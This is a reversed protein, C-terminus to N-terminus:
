KAVVVTGNFVKSDAEIQYIYIGSSAVKGDGNKGDWKLSYETDGRSMDSIFAGNIDFIKGTIGTDKGVYMFHVVDNWGDGNPTFIRPYVNALAFRTAKLSERLQYKGGKKAKLSVTQKQINVDGGVKVWEIGNFWFLSLNDAAQNAPISVFSPAGVIGGFVNYSIKVNALSRTFMLGPVVEETGAKKPLFTFSRITKGTEESTLRVVDFYINDGFSNTEEYLMGLIPLPVSISTKLDNMDYFTVNMDVSSDVRASPRSVNSSLDHTTLWWYYSLGGAYTTTSIVDIPLTCVTTVPGGIETSRYLTYHSLDSAIAGDTSKTVKDWSITFYNRDSSIATRLGRPERPSLTETASLAVAAVTSALVNVSAVDATSNWVSLFEANDRAKIAFWYMAGPTLNQVLYKQQSLPVVNNTSISIQTGTVDFNSKTIIEQAYKIIFYGTLNGTNGNDGPSTWQLNIEGSHSGTLATLDSIGAPPMIDDRVTASSINFNQSWLYGSDQARIAIYVVKGQYWSGNTFQSDDFILVASESQGPAKNPLQNLNPLDTNAQNWWATTDNALDPLSNTSYRVRYPYDLILTGLQPAPDEAATTWEVKVEGMGVGMSAVLDTVSTPPGFNPRVTMQVSDPNAPYLAFHLTYLLFLSLVTRQWKKITKQQMLIQNFLKVM